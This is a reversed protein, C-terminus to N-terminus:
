LSSMGNLYMTGINVVDLCWSVKQTQKPGLKLCEPEKTQIKTLIKNNKDRFCQIRVTSSKNMVVLSSVGRVPPM